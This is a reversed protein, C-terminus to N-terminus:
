KLHTHTHTDIIYQKGAHKHQKITCLKNIQIIQLKNLIFNVFPVHLKVLMSMENQNSKCHMNSEIVTCM